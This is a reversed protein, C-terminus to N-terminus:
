GLRSLARAVRSLKTSVHEIDREASTVANPLVRRLARSGLKRLGHALQGLASLGPLRVLGAMRFSRSLKGPAQKLAEVASLTEDGADLLLDIAREAREFSGLVEILAEFGKQQARMWHPELEQVHDHVTVPPAAPAHAAVIAQAALKGASCAGEMTALDAPNRVFDSALYLGGIAGHALPRRGWTGPPHVLLASRNVESALDIDDDVHHGIVNEPGFLKAGSALRYDALQAVVLQRLEDSTSVDVPLKFPPPQRGFPDVRWQTIDLSLLGRVGRELLPEVFERDWIELQSIATLGYQSDAFFLHGPATTLPTNLYLQLGVMESTQKTLDLTAIPEFEDAHAALWSARTIEQLPGVPLALVFVDASLQAGTRVQVASVRGEDILVREAQAADGHEFEVGLARLTAVWPDIWTRSTPGSLIRDRPLDARWAPALNLLSTNLFTHASGDYADMAVLAKPVTRLSEQVGAPLSAAGLFEALSYHDFREARLWPPTSYFTFLKVGVRQLTRLRESPTLGEVVWQFGKLFEGLEDIRRPIQLFSEPVKGRRFTLTSRVEKLRSAVSEAEAYGTRARGRETASPDRPIRRMMDTVHLYWGPFFRFGHEGPLGGNFQSRAKGGLESRPEHVTVQFGERCALEHAVTLGAIGGGFIRVRTM